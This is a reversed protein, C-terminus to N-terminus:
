RNIYKFIEIQRDTGFNAIIKGALEFMEIRQVPTAKFKPVNTECELLYDEFSQEGGARVIERAYNVVINNIQERNYPITKM